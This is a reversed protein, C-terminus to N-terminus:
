KRWRSTLRRLRARRCTRVPYAHRLAVSEEHILTQRFSKEVFDLTEKSVPRGKGPAEQDSLDLISRLSHGPALAQVSSDLDPLPSGGPATVHATSTSLRNLAVERRGSRKEVFAVTESNVPREKESTAQDSLDQASRFSHGPALTRESSDLDPRPSRGLVTVHATSSYPRGLAVAQGSFQLDSLPSHGLALAHESSRPSHGLGLAQESSLPSHGLALAHGNSVSGEVLASARKLM